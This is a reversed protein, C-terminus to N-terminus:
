LNVLQADPTTVDYARGDFQTGTVCAAATCCFVLAPARRLPQVRVCIAGSGVVLALLHVAAVLWRVTVDHEDNPVVVRAGRERHTQCNIM